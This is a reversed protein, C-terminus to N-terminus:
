EAEALAKKLVPLVAKYMMFFGYDNPHVGDVSCEYPHDTSFFSLGDIFYVNKDGAARAKLYSEMIIDRRQLIHEQKTPYTWYDPRTIMIVPVDPNKERIIEYFPYHTARLHDLDPSNHDYDYVFVSMPLTALWEGLVPEAKAMGSFGINRFDLNLDRSIIAPYITGPRSAATGHVISSGYFIVPKIDRYPRAFDLKADPSLGIELSEVVAHVPFNITYSRMVGGVVPVLAEYSDKMDYPM